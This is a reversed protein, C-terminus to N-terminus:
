PYSVIKKSAEIVEAPSIGKLCAHTKLYCPRSGHISCPRCFLPHEVVVGHSQLPAFGLSPHTPGFLALTPTKVALALHMVGSDNSIVLKSKKLIAALLPLSTQGAVSVAPKGIIGAVKKALEAEGSSGVIVAVWGYAKYFYKGSEAFSEAPWRKPEWRAGPSLVM